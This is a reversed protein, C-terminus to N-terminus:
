RKIITKGSSAFDDEVENVLDDLSEDNDTLDDGRVSSRTSGDDENNIEDSILM